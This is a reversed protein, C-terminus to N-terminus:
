QAEIDNVDNPESIRSELEDIRRNLNAIAVQCFSINYLIVARENEGVVKFWEDNPKAMFRYIPQNPEFVGQVQEECGALGLILIGMVLAFALVAVVFFVKSLTKSMQIGKM